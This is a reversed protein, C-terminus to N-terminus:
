PSSWGMGCTTDLFQEIELLVQAVHQPSWKERQHGMEEFIVLRSDPRKSKIANYFDRSHWAPVRVDHDGHYLLIPIDIKDTNDMPDMGTVTHGQRIRQIRNQGWSNGLRTLNAVGAGAIACQFPGDPRVSAAIAAFGGYSYGHIAIKDPDVYGKEVLWAAGDDKDDQMKLGWEGDGALWLKRGWGSSGRYQPQLIIYGRSAFYQAWGAEGFGIYDRAWPGGHPIVIAGVAKDGPQYGAPYTLIAPIELGDRAAYYILKSRGLQDNRIWPRSSGISILEQKNLLLFYASPQDSNSVTVLIRNRDDTQDGLRVIQDPFRQDLAAQIASLEPDLWHTKYTEALYQFGILEGWDQARRSFVLQSINFRPHAIVPSESLTDSAVDYIYVAAHDSFKDTLVYYVPDSGVRDQVQLDMEYRNKITTTLAPAVVLNGDADLVYRQEIWEGDVFKQAYKSLPRGDRESSQIQEQLGERTVFSQEATALNYRYLSSGNKTTRRSILIEDDDLPLLSKVNTGGQLEFCRQMSETAGIETRGTPLETMTELHESAILTQILFTKTSGIRKGEGCGSLAGIYPQVTTWLSRKKKLARTTVFKLGEQAPTIHTPLITPGTIDGSLDWYAAVSKFPDEPDAVLGVLMDGEHSMSVQSVAAARAFDDAQLPVPDAVAPSGGVLVAFIFLLGRVSM